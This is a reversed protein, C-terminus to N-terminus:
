VRTLLFNFISVKLMKDERKKRKTESLEQLLAERKKLAEREKEQRRMERERFEAQSAKLASQSKSTLLTDSISTTPTALKSLKRGNKSAGYHKPIVPTYSKDYGASKTLPTGVNTGFKEFAEVKKKTSKEYPSFIEKTKKKAPVPINTKIEENKSVGSDTNGDIINPKESVYTANLTGVTTFTTDGKTVIQSEGLENEVHRADNKSIIKTTDGSYANELPTIVEEIEM